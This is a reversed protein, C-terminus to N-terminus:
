AEFGRNWKRGKSSGGAESSPPSVISCNFPEAISMQVLFSPSADGEGSTRAGGGLILCTLLLTMVGPTTM